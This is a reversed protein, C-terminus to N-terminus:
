ISYFEDENRQSFYKLIDELFEKSMALSPVLIGNEDYKLHVSPDFSYKLLIENREIYKRNVKSGHFYHKINTPIYGVRLSKGDRFINNIYKEIESKFGELKQSIFAPKKFLTQCLIYDGSGLIGKDFLGGMKEYMERTCAWGYGSHWYNIGKVQQFPQGNAYKYGYSQWINMPIENKDLDLCTSFLQVLDFRNLIKLCDTAWLPNDFEIDGDVWAVAKWEAPLLKQIGLNIMNEKHWLAHECRLQLHKPNNADTIHFEQDGYALEVVYLQVNPTFQNRQIFERMLEWRRKFECVNSIVTIVHLVNDVFESNLLADKILNNVSPPVIINTEYNKKVKNNNDM